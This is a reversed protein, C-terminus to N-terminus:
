CILAVPSNSNKIYFPHDSKKIKKKLSKYEKDIIKLSEFDDLGSIKAAINEAFVKDSKRKASKLITNVKIKLSSNIAKSFM